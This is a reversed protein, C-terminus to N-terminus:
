GRKVIEAVKDQHLGFDEVWFDLNTHVTRDRRWERPARWDGRHRYGVAPRELPAYHIEFCQQGPPFTFTVIPSLPTEFVVFHRGSHMRVWTAAEAQQPNSTDLVTQWGRLHNNCVEDSCRVRKYHTGLPQALGYTRYAQVDMRPAPRPNAGFM